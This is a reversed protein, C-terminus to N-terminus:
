KSSCHSTLYCYHKIYLLSENIRDGKPGHLKAPIALHGCKLFYGRSLIVKSRIYHSIKRNKDRPYHLIYHIM